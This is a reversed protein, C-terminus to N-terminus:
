TIEINVLGLTNSTQENNKATFGNSSDAASGRGGNNVPLLSTANVSSNVPFKRLGMM